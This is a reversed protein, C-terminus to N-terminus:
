PLASFRKEMVVHPIGAEEFEHSVVTYGLALYFPVAERQAHFWLRPLELDAARQEFAQMLLRGIGQRRYEKLVALRGIKGGKGPDLRGTGVASLSASTTSPGPTTPSIIALAHICLHDRDDFEEERPIQQEVLFVRDRVFRIGASQSDYDTMIIQVPSPSDM